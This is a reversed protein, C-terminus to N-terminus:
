NLATGRWPGGPLARAGLPYSLELPVGRPLLGAGARYGQMTEHQSGLDLPEEYGALARGLGYAWEIGDLDAPASAMATMAQRRATDRQAPNGLELLGLARVLADRDLKRTTPAGLTYRRKAMARVVVGLAGRFRKVPRTAPRYM